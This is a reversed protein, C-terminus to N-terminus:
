QGPEKVIMRFLDCGGPGAGELVMLHGREILENLSAEVVAEPEGTRQAMERVFWRGRPGIVSAKRACM